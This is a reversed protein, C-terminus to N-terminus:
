PTRAPKASSWSSTRRRAAWSGRIPRWRLDTHVGCRGFINLYAQYVRPYYADLSEYDAHFSYADKMIFERVRILGGRSRPEDRFKTQIHYVM